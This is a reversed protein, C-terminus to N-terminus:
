SAAEGRKIRGSTVTGESYGGFFGLTSRNIRCKGGHRYKQTYRKDVLQDGRAGATQPQQKSTNPKFRRPCPYPIRDTFQSSVEENTHDDQPQQGLQLAVEMANWTAELSHLAQSAEQCQTRRFHREKELLQLQYRLLQLESALAANQHKLFFASKETDDDDDAAAQSSRQRKMSQKTKTTVTPVTVTPVTTGGVTPVTTGQNNTPKPTSTPVSNTETALAQRSTQPQSSSIHIPMTQPKMPLPMTRLLPASEPLIPTEERERKPELRPIKLPPEPPPSSLGPVAVGGVGGIVVPVPVPPALGNPDHKARAALARKM